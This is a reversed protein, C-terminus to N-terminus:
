CNSASERDVRTRQAFHSSSLGSYAAVCTKRFLKPTTPAQLVSSPREYDDEAVAEEILGVARDAIMAFQAPDKTARGAKRLIEEKMALADVSYVEALEDVAEVALELDGAQIALDRAAALLVFRGAPDDKAKEAEGALKRFLAVKEAPTKAAAFERQYLQEVMQGAKAQSEESPVPLRSGPDQAWVLSVGLAVSVVGLAANLL